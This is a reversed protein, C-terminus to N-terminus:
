LFQTENSEFADPKLGFDINYIKKWDHLYKYGYESKLEDSFHIIETEMKKSAFLPFIFKSMIAQLTKENVKQTIYEMKNDIISTYIDYVQEGEICNEINPFVSFKALFKLEQDSFIKDMQSDNLGMVEIPVQLPIFCSINEQDILKFDWHVSQFRLDNIKAEYDKFGIAMPKNNWEYIDYLVNNYLRDFDKTELINKYIDFGMKKTVEHRKDNGYIIADKDLHFIFLKCDQKNVNRNIRGALQEDSDILSKDKFGIDMDIDVGAEVVQTTILLVKKKRNTPNKLYNIIERRRHELITGSLVFIVDYFDEHINSILSYFSSATKKFIFEIICYISGSPKAEGFDNILYLKSEQIVKKALYELDINKNKLLEFDFIVRDKFNPNLFYNNKSDPLLYTFNKVTEKIIELNDLKPLTASMLIFKINYNKAYKNIFYILKDWHAPNYSQLEDIVVVSNALRHLLYNTEKENTKLIDFFKIHTMLCIPYNCFLNDIFNKKCDGFNGDEGETDEKFKYEAKSHLQVIENENINLVDIITSYTQTILTTFPFIYFVKNIQGNSAKMLELSALLSINTKGGGTPAEIYFLNQESSMRINNIVEKAMSQRLSNLALNSKKNYVTSETDDLSKYTVFNFNVKGSKLREQSSVFTFIENIRKNKFVGYDSIEIGTMYQSSALYDSATLLSFGLKTLSYLAFGIKNKQIFPDSHLSSLDALFDLTNSDVHIKFFKLYRNIYNFVDASFGVKTVLDDKLYKGHHKFIPYSFNLLCTLYLNQEKEDEIEIAETLYKAIYIFASLGSHHFSIPTNHDVTENFLSNSMRDTQFKENVKGHDHFVVISLWLIKIKNSIHQNFEIKCDDLLELILNDIVLDLNHANALDKFKLIVLNLHERLTENKKNTSAFPPLHALYYEDKDLGFLIDDIESLMEECSKISSSMHIRM